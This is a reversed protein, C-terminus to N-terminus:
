KEFYGPKMTTRGAKEDHDLLYHRAVAPRLKQHYGDVIEEDTSLLLVQHSAQPFYREVLHSRHTSDLRGLPTDIVTPIPRGSARALGWLMATALLQREGASLRDFPLVTGRRDQLTVEFTKPHIKLGHVLDTKRLLQQFSELMLAEMNAVHRAIVKTRFRDLTERVRKSHKLMRQRDDEAIRAVHDKEGFRELQRTAEDRQRKLAEMRVDMAEIEAMIEVHAKRAADMDTQYRAIADAEPVRGLESEIRAIKEELQRIRAVGARSAEYARLLVRQQLHAIYPGLHPDADLIPELNANQQRKSRDQDLAQRVKKLAVADLEALKLEKLLQEDREILADVLIRNQRIEGDRRVQVEVEDLLNEVLRLPLPGSAIERLGAEAEAKASELQQLERELEKRKVFLDGGEAKFRDEKAKADRALRGAENTLRGRELAFKELQRDFEQLDQEAQKLKKAAEADLLDSKKRREFTKLDGELRDVLDLGLLSRIATGLIQAANSGEALEKIQEGDFFFLNSISVPLYAEVVEDWHETLIPDPEGDRSVHVTEEIRRLGERWRRQLEFYHLQGEMMRRFRLVISSGEGADGGRHICERLYNDYAMRGTRNSVKAKSGYLVLLLADLLTTKGGGNMGGLLVVPKRGVPMLDAENVGGYVGFNELRISEFIM